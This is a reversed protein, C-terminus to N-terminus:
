LLSDVLADAEPAHLRRSAFWEDDFFTDLYKEGGDGALAVAAGEGPMNALRALAVFLVGGASGGVLLARRRALARAMTFAQADSVKTGEDIATRDVNRGIEVGEPTGTGSQLYPGAPGGFIISGVPEVGVVRLRPLAAKCRRATGSLSGGTGVAGFLLDFRAGTQALVEDGLAAYSDGNAPNDPQRLYVAGVISRALEEAARERERTAVEGESTSSPVHVLEGGYARILRLKEPAAHHDVIAIFRYGREAALIALGTATNGSSSEVIVGGPALTGTREADDLMGRAMRDKMSQGPNTKELKVLLVWRSTRLRLRLIPTGGGLDTVRDVVRTM